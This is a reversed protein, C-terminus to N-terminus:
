AGRSSNMVRLTILVISKPRRSRCVHIRSRHNLIPHGPPGTAAVMAGSCSANGLVPGVDARQCVNASGKGITFSRDKSCVLTECHIHWSSLGNIVAFQWHNAALQLPLANSTILTIRSADAFPHCANPRLAGSPTPSTRPVGPAPKTETSQLRPNSPPTSSSPCM